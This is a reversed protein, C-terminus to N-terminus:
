RGLAYAGRRPDAAARRRGGGRVAEIMSVSGALWSWDPWASVLHGAQSLAKRTEAPVRAEVRLVGPESEHPEFSSPFSYSALRPAEVAEQPDMGFVALNLFAQLMAQTQVDGGPSGFPVIRERTMALAPNPTLRPRRGPGVRSPHTRDVWSQQGRPSIVMGLSPVVPSRYSGDSPTASFANGHRDVVCVYSTDMQADSAPDSRIEGPDPMGSAARDRHIAARRAAAFDASLLTDVPVPTFRPDGVHRERDAAALKIAEAVLHLYAFGDRDMTELDAGDVIKLIELLMIGQCWPGCGHVDWDRFRISLPTEVEVFFGALDEARLWGGEARHFDVISRAIDGTYFAARAAELGAERGGRRAAARDVDAMHAITDGLDSQVFLEGVEPVRGGPLYIERSASYRAYSERYKSILEAMLPYMHFGSRAFDIAHGAVDAFGMTGFHRLATIWADPAAPVVTRLVGPPIAGGHEAEFVGIDTAAPWCGLGSITAVRDSAADYLMIPAVGAFGVLESELVGLAIGAAVGADVANGGARLVDYATEAALPHGASVAFERGYIVPRHTM